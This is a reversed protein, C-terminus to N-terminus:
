RREISQRFGLGTGSGRRENEKGWIGSSKAQELKKGTTPRSTQITRRRSVEVPAPAVATSPQNDGLLFQVVSFRRAIPQHQAISATSVTPTQTVVDLGEEFTGESDLTVLKWNRHASGDAM